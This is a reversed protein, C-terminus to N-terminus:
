EPNDVIVAVILIICMLFRRMSIKGIYHINALLEEPINTQVRQVFLRRPIRQTSLSRCVFVFHSQKCKRYCYFNPAANLRRMSNKEMYYTPIRRTKQNPSMYFFRGLYERCM